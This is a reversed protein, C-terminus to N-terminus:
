IMPPLPEGPKFVFQRRFQEWLSLAVHGMTRRLNVELCPAIEGTNDVLMDVGFFGHYFPAIVLNLADELRAVTESLKEPSTHHCIEDTLARQSAVLNGSYNGHISSRFLSFGLFTVQGKDAYWETAFDTQKGLRREVMVSGRAKIAQELVRRSNDLQTENLFFIGRGSSTWPLKVVINKWNKACSVVDAFNVCEMPLEGVNMKVLIERTTRRHALERWREVEAQSPLYAEDGNRLLRERLAPNWGWPEVPGCVSKIPMATLSKEKFIDYYPLNKVDIEEPVIIISGEAAYLSPLLALRREFERVNRPPTYATRGSCLAM